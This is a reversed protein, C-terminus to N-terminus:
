RKAMEFGYHGLVREIDKIGNKDIDRIMRLERLTATRLDAITKYGRRSLGTKTRAQLDLQEIPIADIEILIEYVQRVRPDVAGTKLFEADRLRYSM